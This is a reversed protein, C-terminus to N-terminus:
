RLSSARVELRPQLVIQQPPISPEQIRRMLFSWAIACMEEIPQVITTLAPDHYAMDEIGDCGILAVDDPIRLGLDRLARFAAIAMDDNFCFLGDPHGHAAIYDKLAPGIARRTENPTIILEPRQGIEDMAIRYGDLRDDSTQNFWEFWDPILLAIRRCGGGALHHIAEKTVTMLDLRVHDTEERVYVGMNVFPKGGLLHGELGPITGRPLDATLVGDLSWSLLQSSDLVQGSLFKQWCIMMEYNYRVSELYSQHVTHGSLISRLDNSWFAVTQTRGTVLARANRNPQYGMEAAIIRVRQRTEESIRSEVGTLVRSVTAYSVGARTAVERLTSKLLDDESPAAYSM